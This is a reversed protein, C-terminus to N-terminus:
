EGPRRDTIYFRIMEDISWGDWERLQQPHDEGCDNGYLDADFVAGYKGEWYRDMM